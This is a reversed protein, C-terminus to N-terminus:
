APQLGRGPLAPRRGRPPLPTSNSDEVQVSNVVYFTDGPLACIRCEERQVEFGGKLKAGVRFAYYGSTSDPLEFELRIGFHTSHGASRRRIEDIGGRERLAWRHTCRNALLGSPM